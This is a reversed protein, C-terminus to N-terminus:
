LLRIGEKARLLVEMKEILEKFDIPKSQYENAGARLCRDRDGKMALATLAIIPTGALQQDGDARILRMAALGDLNPMQVDMLIIDPKHLAALAVAKVGDEAVILRWPKNRLAGAVVKVNEPNDEALLVVATVANEADLRKIEGDFEPSETEGAQEAENLQWPLEITFRSGVGVSSEVLVQGGHMRAAKQVLM